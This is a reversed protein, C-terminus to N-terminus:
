DEDSNHETVLCELKLTESKKETMALAEPNMGQWTQIDEVILSWVKL